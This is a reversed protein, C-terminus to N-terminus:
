EIMRSSRRDKTLVGTWDDKVPKNSSSKNSKDADPTAKNKRKAGSELKLKETKKKIEEIKKQNEAIAEPSGRKEAAVRRYIRDMQELSFRAEIPNINFDSCFNDFDNKLEAYEPNVKFYAAENKSARTMQQQYVTSDYHTQLRSAQLRTKTAEAKQKQAEAENGNEKLQAAYDDLQNAYEQMGTYTQLFEAEQSKQQEEFESTNQAIAERVMGLERGQEGIKSSLEENRKETAKYKEREERLLAQLEEVSDPLEDESDDSLEDSKEDSDDSEESEEEDEEGEESDDEDEESREEESDDALEEVTEDESEPSESSDEVAPAEDEWGSDDSIEESTLPAQDATKTEEDPM